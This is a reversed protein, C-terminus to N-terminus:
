DRKLGKIYNKRDNSLRLSERAKQIAKNHTARDLSQEYLFGLGRDYYKALVEAVLWAAAMSVYYDSTDCEELLSFIVELYWEDVYYKLLTTLAFRREFVNKSKIYERIYPLFKDRNKQICKPSFSDVTCWNDLTPLIKDLYTIFKEFPLQSVATIKIFTVEYYEDSFNIYSEVNTFQKAIKRLIPVRVGLIQAKTSILKKQFARYKEDVNENLVALLEDYTM